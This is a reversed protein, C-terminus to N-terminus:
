SAASGTRDGGAGEGGEFEASVGRAVPGAAFSWPLRLSAAPVPQFAVCSFPESRAHQQSCLRELAPRQKLTCRTPSSVHPTRRPAGPGPSAGEPRRHASPLAGRVRRGRGGRRALFLRSPPAPEACPPAISVSPATTPFFAPGPACRVRVRGGQRRRRRKGAAARGGGRGRGGRRRRRRGIAAEGKIRRCM